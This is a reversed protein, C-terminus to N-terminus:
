TTTLDQEERGTRPSWTFHKKPMHEEAIEIARMFWAAAEVRKTDEHDNYKVVWDDARIDDDLMSQKERDYVENRKAERRQEIQYPLEGEHDEEYVGMTDGFGHINKLVFDRPVAFALCLMAEAVADNDHWSGDSPEYWVVQVRNDDATVYLRNAGYTGMGGNMMVLGMACGLPKQHGNLICAETLRNCMWDRPIDAYCLELIELGTEGVKSLMYELVTGGPDISSPKEIVPM